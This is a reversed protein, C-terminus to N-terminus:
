GRMTPWPTVRLTRGRSDWCGWAVNGGSCDLSAASPRALAIDRLSEPAAASTAAQTDLQSELPSGSPSSLAELAFGLDSASQFRREPQKELCRRVIKELLPSVKTNTEGIEPPEEKLIANMVEVVSNGAFARRGSLMEYLIVGFSFIDARHDAEQGRAQEPSM